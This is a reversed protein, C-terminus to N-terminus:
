SDMTTLVVEQAYRAAQRAALTHGQSHDSRRSHLGQPARRDTPVPRMPKM